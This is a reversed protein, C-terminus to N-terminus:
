LKNGDVDVNGQFLTATMMLMSLPTSSVVRYVEFFKSGYENIGITWTRTHVFRTGPPCRVPRRM